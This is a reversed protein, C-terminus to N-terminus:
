PFNSYLIIVELCEKSFIRKLDWNIRYLEIKIRYFYKLLLKKRYYTDTKRQMAKDHWSQFYKVILHYRKEFLINDLTYHIM